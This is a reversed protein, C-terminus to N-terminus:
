DSEEERFPVFDKDVTGIGLYRAKYDKVIRRYKGSLLVVSIINICVPLACIFDTIVWVFSTPAGFKVTYWITLLCPLPFIIRFGTIIVKKVKLNEGCIFRLINDYYTFWGTLTTLGFLLVFVSIIKGSWSGFVSTFASITLSAGQVGSSWVGTVVLALGTCTCVLITDVFVEFYGWIGQEFPHKADGQSHIMTSSGQGAENSFVGRSIGNTVMAKVTIGTFGGVAATPSFASKIILGFASGLNKVNLILIIVVGIMYLVCMIPVLFGSLKAIRKAGGWVIFWILVSLIVGCLLIDMDWAPAFGECITYGQIGSLFNLLFCCGWAIGIGKAVKGIKGHTLDSLGQSIYYCPGGFPHGKEDKRRYYVGLSVEAAKLGMGFLAEVWLWFLAGPGGVAISTAVGSINGVGM